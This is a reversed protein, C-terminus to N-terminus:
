PRSIRNPSSGSPAWRVVVTVGKQGDLGSAGAAETMVARMIVGDGWFPHVRLWLQADEGVDVAFCGDLKSAARACEVARLWDETRDGSAQYPAAVVRPRKKPGAPRVDTIESLPAHARDVRDARVHPRDKAIRVTDAVDGDDFSDVSVDADDDLTISADDRARALASKKGKIDAKVFSTM